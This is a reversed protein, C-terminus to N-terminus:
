KGDLEDILESLSRRSLSDEMGEQAQDLLGTMAYKMRCSVSCKEQPPYTHLSFVKPANVARYIDLMSIDQAPRALTCSGTAGRTTHVLEAKALLSLTRRIFSSSTNISQALLASTVPESDDTAHCGLVAMIHVAVAFQTNAPAM